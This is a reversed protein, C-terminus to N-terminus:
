EDDAEKKLEEINDKLYNTIKRYSKSVSHSEFGRFKSRVPFVDIINGESDVDYAISWGFVQLIQNIYLVLGSDIFEKWSKKQIM